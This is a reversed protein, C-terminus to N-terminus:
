VGVQPITFSVQSPYIVLKKSWLGGKIGYPGICDDGELSSKLQLVSQKSYFPWHMEKCPLEVEISLTQIVYM